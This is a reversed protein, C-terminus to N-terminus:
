RQYLKSRDTFPVWRVSIEQGPEYNFQKRVKPNDIRAITFHRNLTDNDTVKWSFGDYGLITGPRMSEASQKM